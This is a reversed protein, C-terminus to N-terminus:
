FVPLRDDAVHRPVGFGIFHLFQTRTLIPISLAKAEALVAEFAERRERARAQREAAADQAMGLPLVLQEPPPAGLVVFDTRTDVKEMVRGGWGRVMAAVREGAPDDVRGDFTLDFDGAIVFTYQRARDFVPNAILDREIIPETPVSSIVKCESTQEFVNVVEIAAKGKGDPPIGEIRPYVAFTMGRKIGDQAGLDIYVIDQGAVARVITGDAIQLVSTLDPRPKFGALEALLEQNRAREAALAAEAEERLRRVEDLDRATTETRATLEERLEEVQGEWRARDSAVRASLAEYEGLLDELRQRSAQDRDEWREGLSALEQQRERFEARVEAMQDAQRGFLDHMGRLATMVTADRAIQGEQVRPDGLITALQSDMAQIVAATDTMGAEGLVKMAVQQLEQRAERARNDAQAARQDAAAVQNRLEEQLTFLYILAGLSIVAVCVFVIMLAKMGGAGGVQQTRAVAM